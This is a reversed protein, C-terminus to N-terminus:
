SQLTKSKGVLLSGCNLWPADKHIRGHAHFSFGAKSTHGYKLAHQQQLLSSGHANLSWGQQLIVHTSGCRKNLPLHPAQQSAVALCPLHDHCYDESLVGQGVAVAVTIADKSCCVAKCISYASSVIKQTELHCASSYQREAVMKEVAHLSETFRGAHVIHVICPPMHSHMSFM